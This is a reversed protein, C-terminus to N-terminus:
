RLLWCHWAWGITGHQVAGGLVRHSVQKATDVVLNLYYGYCLLLKLVVLSPETFILGEIFTAWIM